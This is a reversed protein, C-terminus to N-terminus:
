WELSAEIENNGGWLAVSAHSGLRLLQQVVEAEVNSLFAADRCALCLWAPVSTLAPAPFFLAQVFRCQQLVPQLDPSCRQYPKGTIAHM